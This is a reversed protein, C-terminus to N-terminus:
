EDLTAGIEQVPSAMLDFRFGPDNMGLVTFVSGSHAFLSIGGPKLHDATYFSGVLGSHTNLVGMGSGGCIPLDAKRAIGKLRQLLLTDDATEGSCDDFIVASKAGLDIADLLARELNHSGLGLM